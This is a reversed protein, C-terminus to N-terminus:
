PDDIANWVQLTRVFLFPLLLVSHCCRVTWLWCNTEANQQVSAHGTNSGRYAFDIAGVAQIEDCTEACDSCLICKNPDRVISPSSMDLPLQKNNLFRVAHVGVRFALEQLSCSGNKQCTTCSRCHSSLLLEIIMKRYAQVRKTNTYIVMGPRPQESCSAFINGRENVVCM